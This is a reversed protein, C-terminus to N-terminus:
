EGVLYPKGPKIEGGAARDFNRRMSERADDSLTAQKQQSEPTALAQSIVDGIDALLEDRVEAVIATRKEQLSPTQRLPNFDNSLDLGVFRPRHELTKKYLDVLMQYTVQGGNKNACTVLANATEMSDTEIHANPGGGRMFISLPPLEPRVHVPIGALLSAVRADTQKALANTISERLPDIVSKGYVNNHGFPFSTDVPGDPESDPNTTEEQLNLIESKNVRRVAGVYTAAELASRAGSVFVPRLVIGTIM